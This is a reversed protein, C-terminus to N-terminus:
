HRFHRRRTMVMAVGDANAAAIVEDDRISGGPQIVARVGAEIALAPGDAFPFFADSALVAGQVSDLRCKELALRVSDVRSMQGAGIGVTRDGQALIIANSKVHKCVRWAFLLDSWEQETPQRETVVEMTDRDLVITDRDQVLIGGQVQRGQLEGLPVRRREQDELIRINQKQTLIELAEDTYGPAYLVEIFQQHLAQALEADVERNIAIVGGFASLPDCEFAARYADLATAGTAAGCPNNHKVITCSPEDFDRALATASDLDLLNNFSLQKGHHQKVMSLLHRREGVASYYAARQHPNEGYSLDTVKEYARVLLPPHDDSREAFWRAIATDYRATDHFAQAALEQRTRFSLAGDNQALEELIADYSEPKVVVAAYAHNKAAARIMTPGGIDINEIADRDSVNMRAVTREFPYLNVCVLDVVEIGHEELAAQHEPNDRVALLGAYLKPNLTKVRGDMIEPFGTFDDIARVPLGAAELEKATGGTSILEVGQEALGRAFDVIGRKDSVSLLARRVPVLDPPDVPNLEPVSPM